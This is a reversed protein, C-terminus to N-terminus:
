GVIGLSITISIINPRLRLILSRRRVTTAAPKKPAIASTSAKETTGEFLAAVVLAWCVWNNEDVTVPPVAGTRLDNNFFGLLTKVTPTSYSGAPSLSAASPFSLRSTKEMFSRWCAFTEKTTHLLRLAIRNSLASCSVALPFKGPGTGMTYQSSPSAADREGSSIEADPAEAMTTSADSNAEASDTCEAPNSVTQFTEVVSSAFCTRSRVSSWASTNQNSTSSSSAIPSITWARGLDVMAMPTIRSAMCSSPASIPRPLSNLDMPQAETTTFCAQTPSLSSM